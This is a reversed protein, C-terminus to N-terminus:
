KHVAKKALPKNRNALDWAAYFVLRARKQMLSFNIKSVEDTEKHYDAHTGNFFFAVPIGNKAFNYHDSRYYFMNPDNEDDYRYDLKISCYKKNAAEISKKLDPSIKDSGIVYVFNSDNSHEDDVRGIMDINLNCITNTLPYVPHRTYWASGLLGKEEGSVTMFLMSRRPGHGDQKAKMFAEALEMVAVTGSGDDDAGNYVVGDHKGLHDYHATVVIIEDKLDSGEVFGLVNETTLKEEKRTISLNGESKIVVAIPKGTLNIENRLEEVTRPEGATSIITRAAGPRMYLVALHEETVSAAEDPVLSYGEISHKALEKSKEYDAPVIILAKVGHERAAQIKARRQKTWKGPKSDGTITFIGNTSPEGDLVILIKDKYYSSDIAAYDSYKPDDIGYGLFCFQTGAIELGPTASAYYYDKQPEFLVHTDPNSADHINFTSTGGSIKVLKVNQYWSGDQQAPIGVSKFFDSIYVAAKKQGAEGTERGEFEDSALVTLHTRLDNATITEAYKNPSPSKKIGASIIFTLPIIVFVWFQKKMFLLSLM